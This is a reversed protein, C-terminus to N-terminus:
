GGAARREAWGLALEVAASSMEAYCGGAVEATNVAHADSLLVDVAARWPASVARHGDPVYQMWKRLPFYLVQDYRSFYRHRDGVWSQIGSCLVRAGFDTVVRDTVVFDIDKRVLARTERCIQESLLYEWAWAQSDLLKPDFPLDSGHENVLAAKFGNARLAHVIAFAATTKGTCEVGSLGLIYKM